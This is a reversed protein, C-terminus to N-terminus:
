FGGETLPSKIKGIRDYIGDILPYFIDTEKQNKTAKAKHHILVCL